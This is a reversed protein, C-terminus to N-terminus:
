TSRIKRRGVSQYPPRGPRHLTAGLVGTNQAPQVLTGPSVISFGAYGYLTVYATKTPVPATAFPLIQSPGLQIQTNSIPTAVWIGNARAGDVMRGIRVYCQTNLPLAHGPATVLGAVTISQVTTKVTVAIKRIVFNNSVLFTFFANLFPFAPAAPNVNGNLLWSTAMGGIWQRTFGGNQSALAILLKVGPVPPSNNVSSTQANNATFRYTSALRSAGITSVRIWPVGVGVATLNNLATQLGNIIPVLNSSSTNVYFTASWGSSRYATQAFFVQIKYSPQGSIWPVSFPQNAM